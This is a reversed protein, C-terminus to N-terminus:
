CTRCVPIYQKPDILVKEKNQSVRHSFISPKTKCNECLGKLKTVSDCFPILNLIKGMPEREFDGDLGYIYVNKDNNVMYQVFKQLDNFFQAENILITDYGSCLQVLIPKMLYTTVVVNEIAIDDHNKMTGRKVRTDEDYKPNANCDFDIIIPSKNMGQARNYEDILKTTKGAYMAGLTLHLSM